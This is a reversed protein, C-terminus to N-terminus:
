RPSIATCALPLAMRKPDGLAQDIAKLAHEYGTHSLLPLKLEAM